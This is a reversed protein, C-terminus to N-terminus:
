LHSRPLEKSSAPAVCIRVDNVVNSSVCIQPEVQEASTFTESVKM